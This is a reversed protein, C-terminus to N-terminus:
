CMEWWGRAGGYVIRRRRASRRRWTAPARDAAVLPVYWSCSLRRGSGREDSSALKSKREVVGTDSNSACSKRSNGLDSPWINCCTPVLSICRLNLM